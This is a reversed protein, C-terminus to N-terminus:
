INRSIIYDAFDNFFELSDSLLNAQELAKKAQKIKRIALDETYLIADTKNLIKIVELIDHDDANLNGLTKFIFDRESRRAQELGKIIILTRKGKKIDSGIEHGKNLNLSIDMIDDQLQFAIGINLSFEKLADMQEQNSNSLISAIILSGEFLKATKGTIMQLYDKETINEKFEFFNDLIQGNNVTIYTDTYVKAAKNTIQPEFNLYYLLSIGLTYLINGACIAHSIGFRSSTKSFISGDYKVEKNNQLFYDQIFKHISPKNRRFDDEDMIDDHILTSNHLLEIAIAAPIIDKDKQSCIGNYAMIFSIPRLRKGGNLTYDKILSYLLYLFDNEERLKNIENDFVSLLEKDIIKKYKDLVEKFDM